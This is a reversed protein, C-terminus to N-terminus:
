NVNINTKQIDTKDESQLTLEFKGKSLSKTYLTRTNKGLTTTFKEKSIVSGEQTIVLYYTGDSPIDFVLEMENTVINEEKDFITSVVTGVLPEDVIVKIEDQSCSFLFLFILIYYIKRM